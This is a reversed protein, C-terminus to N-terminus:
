VCMTNTHTNKKLPKRGISFAVKFPSFIYSGTNIATRRGLQVNKRSKKALFFRAEGGCVLKPKPTLFSDFCRRLNLSSSSPWSFSSGFVSWIQPACFHTEIVKESWQHWALKKVYMKMSKGLYFGMFIAKFFSPFIQGVKELNELTNCLQLWCWCPTQNHLICEQIDTDGWAELGNEVTFSTPIQSNYQRSEKQWFSKSSGSLSRNRLEWSHLLTTFMLSIRRSSSWVCLKRVWFQDSSPVSKLAWWNKFFCKLAYFVNRSLSKM